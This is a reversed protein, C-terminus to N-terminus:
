NTLEKINNIIEEFQKINENCVNVFSERDLKNKLDEFIITNSKIFKNNLKDYKTVM